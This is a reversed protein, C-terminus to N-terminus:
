YIVSAGFENTLTIKMGSGVVGKLRQIADDLTSAYALELAEDEPTLFSNYGYSLPTTVASTSM